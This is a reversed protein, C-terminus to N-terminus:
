FAYMLLPIEMEGPSLGGHHGYFKQEFRGPDYWWVTEGDYPLIVLNGVRSMFAASPPEPGFYGERIMDDVLRVDAVGNLRETLFAQAEALLDDKIYLFFDRPSGGPVLLDGKQSTKFYREIGNFRPDQNLHIATKPSVTVQGHDATLLFLTDQFSNNIKQYFTRDLIALFAEVEAEFQPSDPGYHHAVGDISGYYLMFYTPSHSQILALRLNTLIEPLTMYPVIRSGQGILESYPSQAYAAFQAIFSQVGHQQLTQYITHNPVLDRASIGTPKLTEREMTGAFSFLLPTIMADLKPEYYQWEFVGHQGVPLGSHICTVHAATTSPFQSTLKAVAGNKIIEQLFVSREAYKEFFHWGFADVFLLVVKQYRQPLDGFIERPLRNPTDEGTLLHIITPPINAFCTASDYQPKIFNANTM